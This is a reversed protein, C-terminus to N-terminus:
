DDGGGAEGPPTGEPLPTTLPVIWDAPPWAAREVKALDREPDILLQHPRGNLSAWVTARVEVAPYGDARIRDAVHHALQLILDPRTKM